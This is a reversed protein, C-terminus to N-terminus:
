VMRYVLASRFSLPHLIGDCEVLPLYYDGESGKCIPRTKTRREHNDQGGEQEEPGKNRANAIVAGLVATLTVGILAKSAPHAYDKWLTLSAPLKPDEPLGYVSPKEALLYM